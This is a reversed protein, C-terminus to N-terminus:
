SGPLPSALLSSPPSSTGGGEHLWDVPVQPAVISTLEPGREGRPGPPPLVVDPLTALKVGRQNEDPQRPALAAELKSDLQLLFFLQTLRSSSSQNFCKAVATLTRSRCETLMVQLNKKEQHGRALNEEPDQQSSGGPESQSLFAGTDCISHLLQAEM